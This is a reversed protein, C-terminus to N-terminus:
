KSANLDLHLWRKLLCLMKTTFMLFILIINSTLAKILSVQSLGFSNYNTESAGLIQDTDMKYAIEKVTKVEGFLKNTKLDNIQPLDKIAQGNCAIIFFFLTFLQYILEM